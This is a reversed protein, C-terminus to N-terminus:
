EPHALLFVAMGYEWYETMGTQESRRLSELMHARDNHARARMADYFWAECELGRRYEPLQTLESKEWKAPDAVKALLGASETRGLFAGILMERWASMDGYRLRDPWTAPHSTAWRRNLEAAFRSSAPDEYAAAMMRIYDLSPHQKTLFWEVTSQWDPSKALMASLSALLLWREEEPVSGSKALEKSAQDAITRVGSPDAKLLHFSLWNESMSPGDPWKAAARRALGEAEDFRKHRELLFLLDSYAEQQIGSNKADLLKRLLPEATMDPKEGIRELNFRASARVHDTDETEAALEAAPSKAASVLKEYSDILKLARFLQEPREGACLKFAMELNVNASPLDPGVKALDDLLAWGWNPADGALVIPALDNFANVASRPELGGIARKMLTRAAPEGGKDEGLPQYQKFFQLALWRADDAPIEDPNPTEKLLGTLTAVRTPDKAPSAAFRYLTLQWVARHSGDETARRSLDDLDLRDTVGLTVKDLNRHQRRFESLWVDPTRHAWVSPFTETAAKRNLQLAAKFEAEASTPNDMVLDDAGKELHRRLENDPERTLKARSRETETLHAGITAGDLPDDVLDWFPLSSLLWVPYRVSGDSASKVATRMLEKLDTLSYKKELWERLNPPMHTLAMNASEATVWMERTGILTNRLEGLLSKLRDPGSLTRRQNISPLPGESAVAVRISNLPLQERNEPRRFHFGPTNVGYESYIENKVVDIGESLPKALANEPFWAPILDESVDIRIPYIVLFMSVLDGYAGFRREDISGVSSRAQQNSQKPWPGSLRRSREATTGNPVSLAFRNPQVEPRVNNGSKVELTRNAGLHQGINDLIEPLVLLADLTLLRSALVKPLDTGAAARAEAVTQPYSKGIYELLAEVADTGFLPGPKNVLARVALYAAVGGPTLATQDALRWVPLSWAPVLRWDRQQPFPQWEKDFQEIFQREPGPKLDAPRAKVLYYTRSPLTLEVAASEGGAGILRVQDGKLRPSAVLRVHAPLPAPWFKVLEERQERWEAEFGNADLEIDSAYELTLPWDALMKPPTSTIAGYEPPLLDANDHLLDHLKLMREPGQERYLLNYTASDFRIPAFKQRDALPLKRLDTVMEGNQWRELTDSLEAKEGELKEAKQREIEAAQRQTEANRRLLEERLRAQNSHELEREKGERLQKELEYGTQTDARRREAEKMEARHASVESQHKEEEEHQNHLFWALAATVVGVCAASLLLRRVWALRRQRDIVRHRWAQLVPIFADHQLEYSEATKYVRTRLIRAAALRDLERRVSSFELGTIAVLDGAAFSLKLGSAPALHLILRATFTQDRWRKPMLGRVYDDLIRQAGGMQEYLELTLRSGQAHEWLQQCVLQLMPLEVFQPLALTAGTANRGRLDGILRETLEPDCSGGFLEPPRSIAQRVGNEDLSELRYTSQFLNLIQDRLPELAALFEERLSLVVGM